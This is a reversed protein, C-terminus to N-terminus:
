LATRDDFDPVLDIRDSRLRGSRRADRTPGLGAGAQVLQAALQQFRPQCAPAPPRTCARSRWELRQATNIGM